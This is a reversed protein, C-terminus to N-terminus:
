RPKQLRSKALLVQQETTLSPYGPKQVPPFPSPAPPVFAREMERLLADMALYSNELWARAVSSRTVLTNPLSIAQLRVVHDDLAAILEEPVVINLKAPM